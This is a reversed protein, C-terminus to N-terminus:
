IPELHQRGLVGLGVSADGCEYGHANRELFGCIACIIASSTTQQSPAQSSSGRRTQAEANRHRPSKSAFTVVLPILGAVATALQIIQKTQDLDM